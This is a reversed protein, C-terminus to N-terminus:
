NNNRRPQLQWPLGAEWLSPGVVLAPHAAPRGGRQALAWFMIWVQLGPGSTLDRPSSGMEEPNPIGLGQLGTDALLLHLGYM